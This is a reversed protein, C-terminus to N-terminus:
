PLVNRNGTSYILLAATRPHETPNLNQFISPDEGLLFEALYAESYLTKAITPQSKEIKLKRCIPKFKKPNVHKGQRFANV